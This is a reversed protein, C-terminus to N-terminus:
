SFLQNQIHILSNFIHEAGAAKLKKEYANQDAHAGVFGYVQMGAATAGTVGPVSDEIVLCKEPLAGMTKAAFLFLDPAPKANEVQAATFIIDDPFYKKLGTMALSSIVNDRQGNSAVCIKMRRAATAVLESAGPIIKLHRPSLEAVKGVYREGLTAPFVHGTEAAITKLMERMQTGTFRAGVISPTYQPLGEEALLQSCALNQMPESDVLTGDCDFILLDYLEKQAM